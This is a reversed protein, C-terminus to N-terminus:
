EHVLKHVTMPKTRGIRNGLGIVRSLTCMDLDGNVILDTAFSLDIGDYIYAMPAFLVPVKVVGDGEGRCIGIRKHQVEAMGKGVKLTPIKAEALKEIVKDEFEMADSFVVVRAPEQREETPTVLSTVLDVVTMSKTKSIGSDVEISSKVYIMKKYSVRERCIPCTGTQCTKLWEFMCEGCFIGLCGGEILPKNVGMQCIPCIAQSIIAPNAEFTEKRRTLATIREVIQPTQEVVRLDTIKKELRALITGYPDSTVRGGLRMVAEQIRQQDLLRKIQITIFTPPECGLCMYTIESIPPLRISEAIRVAPTKITVATRIDPDKLPLMLTSQFGRLRTFTQIIDEPDCTILWYFGAIVKCMNPVVSTRPNDIILRKWALAPDNVFSNFFAPTVLVVDISSTYATRNSSTVTMVSLGTQKLEKEWQKISLPSTLVLTTDVKIVTERFCTSVMVTSSLPQKYDFMDSGSWEIGQGSEILSVMTATKGSGEMDGFIGVKTEIDYPLHPRGIASGSPRGTRELQILRKLVECQHPFLTLTSSSM